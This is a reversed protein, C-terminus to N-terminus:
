IAQAPRSTDLSPDWNSQLDEYPNQEPGEFSVPFPAVPDLMGNPDLGGAEILSALEANSSSSVPSISSDALELPADQFFDEPQAQVGDQSLMGNPDLSKNPGLIASLDVMKDADDLGTGVSLVARFARANAM